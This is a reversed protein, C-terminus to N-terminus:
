RLSGLVSEEIYKALWISETLLEKLSHATVAPRKDYVYLRDDLLEVDFHRFHKVFIDLLESRLIALIIDIEEIRVLVIFHDNFAQNPLLRTDLILHTPAKLRIDEFLIPEHHKSIILLHPLTESHLDLQAITWGFDRSQHLPHDLHVKRRLVTLDYGEYTGVIFHNDAHSASLTVGRVLEFEERSMSMHGLYTLGTKRAYDRFAHGEAM